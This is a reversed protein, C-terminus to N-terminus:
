RRRGVAREGGARRIPGRTLDGVVIREVRRDDLELLLAGDDDVGRYLGRRDDGGATVTVREDVLAARSRWPRLDARGGAAVFAQYGADIREVLAALLRERDQVRGTAVLLSTAGDVLDATPVNVNIGVGVVAHEVGIAGTRATVLVGAVKRGGIWVDNPWKLRCVVEAVADIAEATAVGAVLPLVALRDPPVPPRLLISCLLSTGAPATWRRGSRGRGATQEDAVVVTGDPEGAGALAEVEDMTSPVAGLRVVRRGVVAPM